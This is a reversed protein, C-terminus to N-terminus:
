LTPTLDFYIYYIVELLNSKKIQSHLKEVPLVWFETM